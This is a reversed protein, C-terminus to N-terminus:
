PLSYYDIIDLPGTGTVTKLGGKKTTKLKLNKEIM